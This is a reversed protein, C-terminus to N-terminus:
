FIENRTRSSDWFWLPNILSTRTWGPGIPDGTGPGPGLFKLRGPGPRTPEPDLLKLYIPDPDSFGQVRRARATVCRTPIIDFSVYNM